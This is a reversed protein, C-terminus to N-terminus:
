LNTKIMCTFFINGFDLVDYYYLRSNQRIANNTFLEVGEDKLALQFKNIKIISGYGFM